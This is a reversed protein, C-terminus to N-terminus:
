GSDLFCREVGFANGYKLRLLSTAIALPNTGKFM